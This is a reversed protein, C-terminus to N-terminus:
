LDAGGSMEYLDGYTIKIGEKPPPSAAVAGSWLFRGVDEPSLEVAVKNEVSRWRAKQLVRMTGAEAIFECPDVSAYRSVNQSIGEKAKKFVERGLERRGSESTTVGLRDTIEWGVSKIQKVTLDNSSLGSLKQDHM